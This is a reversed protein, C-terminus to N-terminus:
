SGSPSHPQSEPQPVPDDTPKLQPLLIVLRLNGLLVEDGDRILREINVPLKRGNIRTGNTSNMDHLYILSNERRLQAHTRSVGLTLANYSSLDVDLDDRTEGPSNRGLLLTSAIQYTLRDEEVLIVVPVSILLVAQGSSLRPTVDSETPLKRTIHTADKLM